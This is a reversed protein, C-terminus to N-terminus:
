SEAKAMRKSAARCAAIVCVIVLGILSIKYSTFIVGWLIDIIVSGRGSHDHWNGIAGVLVFLVLVLFVLRFILKRDIKKTLEQLWFGAQIPMLLAKAYTDEASAPSQHVARTQGLRVFKRSAPVLLCVVLVAATGAAWIPGQGAVAMGFEVVGGIFAAIWALKSGRLLYGALIGSVALILLWVITIPAVVVHAITDAVIVAAALFLSLPVKTGYKM